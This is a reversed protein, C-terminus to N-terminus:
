PAWLCCCTGALESPCFGSGPLRGLSELLLLQKASPLNSAGHALPKWPLVCDSPHQWFDPRGWCMCLAHPDPVGQLFNWGLASDVHAEAGM